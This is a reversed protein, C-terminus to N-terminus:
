KELDTLLSKLFDLELKAAEIYALRSEETKNIKFEDWRRWAANYPTNQCQSIGTRKMVPCGICQKPYTGYFVECLPCNKSDPADTNKGDVIDQWKQISKILADKM